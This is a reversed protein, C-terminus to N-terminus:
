VAQRCHATVEPWRESVLLMRLTAGQQAGPATWRMGAGKMRDTGFRKGASEALGSGIQYGAAVFAPYAVQDRRQAIYAATQHVLRQVSAEPDAGDPAARELVPSAQQVALSAFGQLVADVQGRQLARLLPQVWRRAALSGDGFRAHAAAWLHQQAHPLDFV